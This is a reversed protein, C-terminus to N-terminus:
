GETTGQAAQAQTGGPRKGTLKAWRDHLWNWQEPQRRVRAGLSESLRRTLDVEAQDPGLDSRAEMPAEFVVHYHGAAEQRLVYYPVAVAGTRVALRGTVLDHPTPRGLFDLTTSHVKARPRQDLLVLLIEGDKLLRLVTRAAHRRDVWSKIGHRSSFQVLFDSVLTNNPPRLVVHAPEFFAGLVSPGLTWAGLHGSCLLIGKGTARAADFHHRGEIEVHQAATGKDLFTDWV